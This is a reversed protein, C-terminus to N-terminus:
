AHASLELAAVAQLNRVYLRTGVLTPPTWCIGDLLPWKAMAQFREPSALGLGLNGDQDLILLKGDASLLQAKAFDRVQWRIHGTELDVAMLFAPGSQGSSLYVCGGDQIVSGFHSQVRQNHWLEKVAESGTASDLRFARAGGGYATSIFLINRQPWWVPTSIALGYQQPHPRRWLLDGTDPAVSLVEQAVLAVVQSQGNVDILIPSSYANACRHRKWIVAGDSQRFRIVASSNGGALVIVSDAFPLPHASYGFQLRDGGFEGVLDHSWVLKGSARDLSRLEGSASVALVRDGIVQPMAYPGPGVESYANRFRNPAEFEWLADGNRADLAVIFDSTRRRYSTYLQGGQEAIAAYGDGLIRQWLLRPPRSVWTGQNTGLIGRSSSRFDRRPGGWLPWSEPVGPPPQKQAFLSGALQLLLSRRHIMLCDRM